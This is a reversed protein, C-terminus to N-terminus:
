FKVTTCFLHELLMSNCPVLAKSSRRIVMVVSGSPQVAVVMLGVELLIGM